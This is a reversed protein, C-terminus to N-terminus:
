GESRMKARDHLDDRSLRESASFGGTALIEARVKQELKLLREFETETTAFDVLFRKVEASVSTDLAAARMRARRYTADDVAVTINKM